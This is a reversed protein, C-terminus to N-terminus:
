GNKSNDINSSNISSINKRAKPCGYKLHGSEGCVLCLGKRMRHQREEPTLPNRRVYDVEMADNIPIIPPQVPVTTIQDNRVHTVMPRRSNNREQRREFLRNDIKIALDIANTLNAPSDFHVLEDKIDSNLGSRFQSLLAADNWSLDTALQRFEAVYNACPRNNQKLNRLENESNLEQNIEGFTAKFKAKFIPWSNLDETFSEPNELYPNYWSLAKDSLLTGLTATKIKDSNYRTPQLRFVLELQNIFGRFEKRNGNFKPPLSVKPEKNSHNIQPTENLAQSLAFANSNNDVQQRLLRNQSELNELRRGLSEIIEELSPM